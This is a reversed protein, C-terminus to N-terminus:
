TFCLLDCYREDRVMSKRHSARLDFRSKDVLILGRGAEDKIPLYRTGGLRLAESDEDDFEALTLPRFAREQGFLEVKKDWYCGMREAAKQVDFEECRLFKLLFAQDDAHERCRELAVLYNQKQPMPLREMAHRLQVTSAVRLEETEDVPREKGYLVREHREQEGQPLSAIEANLQDPTIRPASASFSKM